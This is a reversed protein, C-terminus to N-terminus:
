EERRTNGVYGAAFGPDHHAYNRIMRPDKWAGLQQLAEDPTGNQKHWTAWTHRLGHWTFGQYHSGSEDSVYAGLGARACAAMFATKIDKIREGRFPFVYITPRGEGNEPRISRSSARHKPRYAPLARQAVLVALAADNLPVAIGVDGKAEDAEIWVMRRSTDVKDWTLGLVNDQRLGTQVAFLAAPKLHPPLEAYLADWQEHTLWNRRKTKKDRKVALLPPSALWGATKALNLIAAIMTRYRMYTGATRCFCLAEHVSDRTVDSLARDPYVRGFKALSLLESDSRPEVETWAIVAVGWTHGPGIAPLAWLAVQFENERKQAATRDTEGTSQRVRGGNHRLNSWWVQSNKQKYLSM